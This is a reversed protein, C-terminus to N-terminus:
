EGRKDADAQRSEEGLVAEVREPNNKVVVELLADNKVKAALEVCVDLTERESPEVVAGGAVDHRTQHLIHCADLPHEDVADLM